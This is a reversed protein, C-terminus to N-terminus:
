SEKVAAGRLNAMRDAHKNNGRPIWKVRANGFHQVANQSDSYIPLTIDIGETLLMGVTIAKREAENVDAASVTRRWATVEDDVIAVVGVRAAGDKFGADVFVARTIRERAAIRSVEGILNCLAVASQMKGFDTDKQNWQDLRQLLKEPAGFETQQKGALRWKLGDKTSFWIDHPKTATLVQMHYESRIVVNAQGYRRVLEEIMKVRKM